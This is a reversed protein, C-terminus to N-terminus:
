FTSSCVVRASSDLLMRLVWPPCSMVTQLELELADSAMEPMQLAGAGVHVVGDGVSVCIGM